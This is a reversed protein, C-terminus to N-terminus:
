LSKFSRRYASPTVGMTKKFVRSFHSQDYFGAELAIESIPMNSGCLKTISKEIRRIRVYDGITMSFHDRFANVLHTPHRNAAIALDKIAVRESGSGDILEKVNLLWLPPSSTNRRDLKRFMEAAIELMLGKITLESFEDQERIERYLRTFLLSLSGSKLSTTTPYKHEPFIEELRRSDFRVTLCKSADQFTNHHKEDNARFMVTGSDCVAENRGYYETFNGSLVYRLYVYDHSHPSLKTGSTYQAETFRYGSMDTKSLVNGRIWDSAM